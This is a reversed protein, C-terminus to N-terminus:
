VCVVVESNVSSTIQVWSCSHLQIYPAPLNAGWTLPINHLRGLKLFFFFVQYSVNENKKFKHIFTTYMRPAHACTYACLGMFVLINPSRQWERGGQEKSVTGRQAQFQDPLWSVGLQSGRGDWKVARPHSAHTKPPLQPAFEPGWAEAAFARVQWMM